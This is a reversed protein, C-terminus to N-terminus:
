ILVARRFPRLGDLIRKPYVNSGAYTVSYDDIRESQVDDQKAKDILYWVMKAAIPKIAHPWKVQSIIIEGPWRHYTTQAQDEIDGSSTLTLTGSSVSALEFYGENSGGLVIVDAGARFGATTFYEDDDTITDPSTSSTNTSGRVFELSGASHRYITTDGFDNNCYHRIDDQVYQILQRIQEDYSQDNGLNLLVKCESVTLIM